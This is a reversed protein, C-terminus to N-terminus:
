HTYYVKLMPIMNPYEKAHGLDIDFVVAEKPIFDDVSDHKIPKHICIEWKVGARFNDLSDAAVLGDAVSLALAAAALRITQKM